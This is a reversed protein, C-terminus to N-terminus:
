LRSKLIAVGSSTGIRRVGAVIYAHATKGDRVGGAAKTEAENGAVALMLDVVAPTAGEKNFGTSTKIFRAGAAISIISADIIEEETLICTEFIVKLIASGAGKSTTAENVAKIDEYLAKYNKDKMYGINMVMDIEHAGLAIIAETEAVKAVTMGAGLPFGIVAAVKVESGKLESLAQEVRSGNVCVAFFKNEKAETCLKTIDAASADAKLVTHDIYDAPNPIGQVANVSHWSMDKADKQAAESYLHPFKNKLEPQGLAVSLYEIRDRIKDNYEGKYGPMATLDVVGSPGSEYASM